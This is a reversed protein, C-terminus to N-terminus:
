PTARYTFICIAMLRFGNMPSHSFYVNKSLDKYPSKFFTLIKKMLEVLYFNRPRLYSIEPSM